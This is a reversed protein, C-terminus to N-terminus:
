PHHPYVRAIFARDQASLVSNSTTAVGVTTLEAPFAYLMISDPDFATFQTQARSYRQLINRRILAENWYNPPGSFARFVAAEDWGMGSAPSQHEHLLGLAHGFEHLVVRRWEAEAVGPRLWGLNMTPEDPRFYAEVLADTGVASWAGVGAFSIRIEAGPHDTFAFRINAVDSWAQAHQEVRRRMEPLGDLFAVQLVRGPRWFASIRGVAELAAANAPNEALAAARAAGYLEDPVLRDICIEPFAM